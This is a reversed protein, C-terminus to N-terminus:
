YILPKDRLPDKCGFILNLGLRMNFTKSNYPFPFTNNDEVTIMNYSLSVNDTILYLNFPGVKFNVGIGFNNYSNNMISYSLSTSIFKDNLNFSFTFQPQLKQRYIRTKSLVGFSFTNNLHYRGGLYIKTSLPTSFPEESANMKISDFPIEEPNKINVGEFEFEEKQSFNYTNSRWGISGLDIVSFSLEFENNHRYIFGFDLAAGWNDTSTFLDIMGDTEEYEKKLTADEINGDEDYTLDIPASVNIEVGAPIRYQNISTHLEINNDTRYGILGFLGKLRVGVTWQDNIQESIGLAYERFYLMDSNLTGLDYVGGEEVGTLPIEFLDKPYSFNAHIRDRIDLSIYFSKMRFGVSLLSYGFDGSIYNIDKLSSLFESAGIGQPHLFSITTDNYTQLIDNITFGTHTMTTELPAFVPAGLYFKCDFQKAPNLQNSQAVRDMFYSTNSQQGTTKMIIVTLFFLIVLGQKQIFLIRKM